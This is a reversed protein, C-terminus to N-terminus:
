RSQESVDLSVTVVPRASSATFIRGSAPSGLSASVASVRLAGPEFVVSGLPLSGSATGSSTAMGVALQWQELADLTEWGFYDWGLASIGGSNAYGLAVLDHNLQSM